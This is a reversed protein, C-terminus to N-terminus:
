WRGSIELKAVPRLAGYEPSLVGTMRTPLTAQAASRAARLPAAFVRERSAHLPKLPLSLRKRSKREEIVLAGFFRVMFGAGLICLLFVALGTPTILGGIQM